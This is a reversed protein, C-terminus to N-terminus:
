LSFSELTMSTYSKLLVAVVGQVRPNNAVEDGVIIDVMSVSSESSSWPKYSQFAVPPVQLYDLQPSTVNDAVDAVFVNDRNLAIHRTRPCVNLTNCQAAQSM